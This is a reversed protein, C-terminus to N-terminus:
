TLAREAAAGLRLLRAESHPPAFFMLGCSPTGTPLTVACGGMMNGLRANRSALLNESAFLAPDAMVDSVKPPLIPVSPLIVADFEATAAAWRARLGDLATWANLYAEASIGKGSRFRGLLPPFVKEPTADIAAGWTAWAEGAYLPGILPAWDALWPLARPEVRAGTVSLRQVAVDFAAMPAERVEDLVITELLMLRTGALSAGSLDAPRGGALLALVLAADEVSRCLPGVTDLHACLPVVGDLPLLGHTTKLGVLDNWAAPIRVSGGTDSGIGAAALGFAVSAAAGSSSGGAGADPDNVCPSTATVPNIGLVSFALETMHTKGLCVLGAQTARRLVEADTKPVRGALLASGAETAVGASDFLDKWSIPVGDLPGRGLGAKARAAAAAAEARAREPTTRAYIRAGVPQAAIAALFAEALARADINGAAIGRGLDAASAKLWDGSM